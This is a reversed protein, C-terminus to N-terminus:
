RAGSSAAVAARPPSVFIPSSWARERVEALCDDDFPTRYDGYCPSTALANGAADFATRLNAGNVAPTFEQLARVYYLAERGSEAYEPDEFTVVCGEPSGPCEFRRWPDEILDDVPEGPEAQPRIRVVEIAAIPHREDGPHHCEGRCLRELRAEPLAAHSDEPCGPKQVFAGVARVEFRPAEALEVQSGMPTAGGPGNLLDFWLLIRPGSTGYVARERLAEWISGRDRGGAHVAVLGGPYLFSAVREADLGPGLGRADEPVPRPRSPDGGTGVTARRMIWDRWASPAGSAETMRRREYQKYGTGPRAAHNDSSAIFGYRFRLPRGDADADDFNSLALSYQVSEMPRLALTPKFCDRCQGCDLWDEARTDPIVLHGSVGSEMVLRRAEEVRAECEAAPLDGCRERVIEGARWCCPLYDPTPKPCIPEGDEGELFARWSRYEESSGHGSHIEVLRQADPDHASRTLQKDMSTRPPTYFGWTTGHPIVLHPFGWQALKEFLVGPTPAGELCDPPLERTDVGPECAPIEALRDLLWNFDAYPGPNLPDVWRLMRARDLAAFLGPRDPEMSHIPRAPLEDDALGPFIVNRHGYHTEPTPGVQTWEWGAFAVLDPDAPDGARANCQRLSEKTAEWHAPTLSEAHDNLSFFDLGACYRAFDCADAPPHAGEGALFPLSLLFADISYTTHVHLDGFLIRRAPAAEAAPAAAHVARAAEARAGEAADVVAADRGAGQIVGPPRDSGGCAAVLLLGGIGLARLRRRIHGV